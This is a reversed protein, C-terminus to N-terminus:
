FSSSLLCRMNSEPQRHPNAICQTYFDALTNVYSTGDVQLDQLKSLLNITAMLSVDSLDEQGLCQNLLSNCLVRDGAVFADFAGNANKFRHDKVANDLAYMWEDTGVNKTDALYSIRTKVSAKPAPLTVVDCCLLEFFNGTENVANGSLLTTAGPYRKCLRELIGATTVVHGLVTFRKVAQTGMNGVMAPGSAIGGTMSLPRADPRSSVTISSIERSAKLAAGAAASAHNGVSTVANFSAMFKDGQFGDLVGKHENVARVVAAVVEASASVVATPDAGIVHSHYSAINIALMSVKRNSLSVGTNLAAKQASSKDTRNQETRRGQVSAQMTAMSQESAEAELAGKALSRSRSAMQEQVNDEDDEEESSPAGYLQALVSQPLFSKVKALEESMVRFAGQITAIEHLRSPKTPAEVEQLTAMRYMSDTVDRLPSLLLTLIVFCLGVAVVVIGISIYIAIDRGRVIGGVIDSQPVFLAFRWHMGAAQATVVPVVSVFYDKDALKLRLAGSQGYKVLTPRDRALQRLPAYSYSSVPARCLMINLTADNASDSVLCNSPVVGAYPKPIDTSTLYPDSYSSALLLDENDILM